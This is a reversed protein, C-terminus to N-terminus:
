FEKDFNCFTKGMIFRNWSWNKGYEKYKENLYVLFGVVTLIISLYSLYVNIQKLNEVKKEEDKIEYYKKYKEIIVIALLVLVITFLYKYNTRTTIVFWFYLLISKLISSTPNNSMNEPDEAFIVFFVLTILGIIHKFFMNKQFFYQAKCGFLEGLYNGSILLYLIFLNKSDIVLNM